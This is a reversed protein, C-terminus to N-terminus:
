YLSFTTPNKSKLVWGLKILGIHNNVIGRLLEISEYIKDKDSGDNAACYTDVLKLVKVDPSLIDAINAIWTKDKKIAPNTVEFKKEKPNFAITINVRKYDKNIVRENLLAAMLATVRQQGDILVRKGESSTGDKLKVSPNRWAILYGIPYGEYLSDILDRVKTADWVFPRQIEPIAIEGSTIWTLLTQIPHQNVSYQQISM